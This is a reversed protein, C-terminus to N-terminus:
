WAGICYSMNQQEWAVFRVLLNNYQINYAITACHTKYIYVYKFITFFLYLLFILHYSDKLEM